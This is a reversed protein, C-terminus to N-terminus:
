RRRTARGLDWPGSAAGPAPLTIAGGLAGAYTFTGGLGSSDAAEFRVPAMGDFTTTVTGAPDVRLRVGAGGSETITGTRM